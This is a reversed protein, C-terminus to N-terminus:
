KGKLATQSKEERNGVSESHDAWFFSYLHPPDDLITGGHTHQSPFTNVM